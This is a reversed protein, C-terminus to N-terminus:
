PIEFIVYKFWGFDAVEEPLLSREKALWWDFIDGGSYELAEDRIASFFSMERVSLAETRMTKPPPLHFSGYRRNIGNVESVIRPFDVEFWHSEDPYVLSHPVREFEAIEMERFIPSQTNPVVTVVYRRSISVMQRLIQVQEEYPYHEVVGLSFVVDASGKLDGISSFLDRCIFAIPTTTLEEALEVGFQLASVAIDLGTSRYGARALLSAALASGCGLEVCTAGYPLNLGRIVDCLLSYTYFRGPLYDRYAKRISKAHVRYCAHERMWFHETMNNVDFGACKVNTDLIKQFETEVIYSKLFGSGFEFTKRPMWVSSFDLM